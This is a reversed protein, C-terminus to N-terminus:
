VFNNRGYNAIRPNGEQDVYINDPTLSAHFIKRDNLYILSELIKEFMIRKDEFQSMSITHSFLGLEINESLIAYFGNEEVIDNDYYSRIAYM